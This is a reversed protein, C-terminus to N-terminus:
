ITRSYKLFFIGKEIKNKNLYYYEFDVLPIKKLNKYNFHIDMHLFKSVFLWSRDPSIKKLSNKSTYFKTSPCWIKDSTM